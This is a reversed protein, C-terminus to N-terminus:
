QRADAEIRGHGHFLYSEEYSGIETDFRVNYFRRQPHIYTVTGTRRVAKTEGFHVWETTKDGVEM